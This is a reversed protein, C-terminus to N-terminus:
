ESMGPHCTVLCYLSGWERCDGNCGHPCDDDLAISRGIREEMFKISLEVWEPIGPETENFEDQSWRREERLRQGGKSHRPRTCCNVRKCKASRNWAKHGLM